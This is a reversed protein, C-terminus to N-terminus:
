TKEEELRSLLFSKVGERWAPAVDFRRPAPSNDRRAQELIAATLRFSGQFGVTSWCRVMSELSELTLRLRQMREGARELVLEADLTDRAANWVAWAEASRECERAAEILQALREM